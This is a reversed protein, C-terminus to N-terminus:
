NHNWSVLMRILLVVKMHQLVRYDLGIALLQTGLEVLFLIRTISRAYLVSCERALYTNLGISGERVGNMVSSVLKSERQKLLLNQMQLHVKQQLWFVATALRLSMLVVTLNM